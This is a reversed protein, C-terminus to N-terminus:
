ALGSSVFILSLFLGSECTAGLLVSSTAKNVSLNTHWPSILPVTSGLVPSKLFGPFDESLLPCKVQSPLDFPLESLSLLGM